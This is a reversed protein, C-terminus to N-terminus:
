AGDKIDDFSLEHVANLHFYVNTGDDMSIFGYGKDRVLKSVVGGRKLKLVGIRGLSLRTANVFADATV